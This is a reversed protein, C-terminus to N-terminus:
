AAAEEDAGPDVSPLPVGSTFPQAHQAGGEPIEGEHPAASCSVGGGVEGQERGQLAPEWEPKFALDLYFFGGQLRKKRCGLRALEKGFMTQSGGILGESPAWESYVGFLVSAKVRAGPKEVLADELFRAVQDMEGRYDARAKLVAQPPALGQQKWARVGELLWQLIGPAEARLKASLGKDREAEPIVVEFPVMHIRRWMADDHAAITPKHNAMVILKHSPMFEVNNERMRRARVRDGGTLQKILAPDFSRGDNIEATVALRAGRLDVLGTTHDGSKSALLLNPAAQIALGPGLVDQMVGVMVSKGNAGSGHFFFLVQEGVDGTLCYGMARQLYSRVEPDPQVRDLFAMFTPCTAEPSFGTDVCKTILDSARHQQLECTQLDITGSKCTLLMPHSDLDTERVSVGPESQALKMMATRRREALSHKAWRAIEKGQEDGEVEAADAFIQRAVPKTMQMVTGCQDEEWVLGNWVFWARRAQVHIIREGFMRVLREANGTDTLEYAGPPKASIAGEQLGSGTTAQHRAGRLPWGPTAKVLGAGLGSRITARCEREELGCSAGARLLAVEVEAQTLVCERVLAGLRFSERNLTANRTGVEAGEVRRAAERLADQVKAVTSTTLRGPTACSPSGHRGDDDVREVIRVLVSEPLEAVDVEDPSRGDAWAYIAGTDPHLSGPFVVVGGDGKVDVNPALTSNSNGVPRGPSKFYYHLKGGGTEVTVTQPLDLSQAASGDETDDDIVIVGSGQGTRLGLNGKRAWQNLLEPSPAGAAPWQKLIPRKGRMPTLLWGRDHAAMAETALSM